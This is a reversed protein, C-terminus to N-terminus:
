ELHPKKPDHCNDICLLSSCPRDLRKESTFPATSGPDCCYCVMALFGGGSPLYLRHEFMVDLIPIFSSEVALALYFWVIGFSILRLCIGLYGPKASLLRGSRIFLVLSTTLLALHLMLSSLVPVTFLSRQLPIDYDLNLNIPLILLRLYSVVVRFQTLLYDMRSYTLEEKTSHQINFIIDGLGGMGHQAIRVIPIVLLLSVMCGMFVRNRLLRGRFLFMEAVVLMLPLTYATEKCRLALVGAALSLVSLITIRFFPQNQLSAIRAQIFSCSQVFTSFRRWRLM